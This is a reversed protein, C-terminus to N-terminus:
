VVTFTRPTEADGYSGINGASDEATLYWESDTDAVVCHAPIYQKYLNPAINKMPITEFLGSSHNLYSLTFSIAGSWSDLGAYVSVATGGTQDDAVDSAIISPAATDVAGTNYFVIFGASDSEISFIDGISLNKERCFEVVDSSRPMRRVGLNTAM